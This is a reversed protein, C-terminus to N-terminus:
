TRWRGNTSSNVDIEVEFQGKKCHKPKIIRRASVCPDPSAVGAAGTCTPVSVSDHFM